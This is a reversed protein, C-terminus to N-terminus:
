REIKQEYNLKKKYDVQENTNEKKPEPLYHFSHPFKSISKMLKEKKKHDNQFFKCSYHTKQGDLRSFIDKNEDTIKELIMKRRIFNFTNRRSIM